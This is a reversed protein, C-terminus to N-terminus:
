AAFVEGANVSFGALVESRVMDDGRFKGFLTYVHGALVWVEITQQRPSVIWYERVGAEAYVRFKLRRDHSINSPSLIEVLLDPVGVINMEGIIGANAISVFVLDPQVNTARDPLIVDVPAYLIRGLPHTKLYSWILGHLTGSISQHETRPPPSMYLYGEVVEFRVGEDPLCAYDEYTWEGQRPWRMARRSSSGPKSRKPAPETINIPNAVAVSM